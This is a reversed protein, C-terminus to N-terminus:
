ELLGKERLYPVCRQIGKQLSVRPQWNLLNRAKDMSFTVYSTVFSALDPLDRLRNHEPVLKAVPWAVPKIVLPPIGLWHDHGALAAYSGLFERWTPSPDPTCNFTEGVANPHSALTVL